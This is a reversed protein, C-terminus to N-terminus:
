NILDDVHASNVQLNCTLVWPWGIFFYFDFQDDSHITELTKCNQMTVLGVFGTYVYTYGDYFNLKIAVPADKTTVINM